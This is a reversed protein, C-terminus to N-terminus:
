APAQITKPATSPLPRRHRSSREGYHPRTPPRLQARRPSNSTPVTGQHDMRQRQRRNQELQHLHHAARQCHQSVVHRRHEQPPQAGLRTRYYGRHFHHLQLLAKKVEEYNSRIDSPMGNRCTASVKDLLPSLHLVWNTQTVENLRAIEEFSQLLQELDEASSIKTLSSFAQAHATRDRQLQQATQRAANQLQIEERETNQTAEYTKWRDEQASQALLFKTHM